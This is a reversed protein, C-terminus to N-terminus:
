FIDFIKLWVVLALLSSTILVVFLIEQRNEVQGFSTTLIHVVYVTHHAVVSEDLFSVTLVM